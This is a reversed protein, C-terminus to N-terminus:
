RRRRRCAPAARRARCAVRSSRRVLRQLPEDGLSGTDADDANIVASRGPAMGGAISATQASRQTNWRSSGASAPTHPTGAASTGPARARDGRRRRSCAPPATPRRAAARRGPSGVASRRRDPHQRGDHRGLGQWRSAAGRVTIDLEDDADVELRQRRRHEGDGVAFVHEDGPRRAAAAAGRQRAQRRRPAAGMGVPGHVDDGRRAPRWQHRPRLDDVHRRGSSAM